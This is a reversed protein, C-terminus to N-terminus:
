ENKEKEVLLIESSADSDERVYCWCSTSVTNEVLDYTIDDGYDTGDGAGSYNWTKEMWDHVDQELNEIELLENKDKLPSLILSLQANMHGEDSGGSFQLEIKGVSLNKARDYLDKPLPKVELESTM